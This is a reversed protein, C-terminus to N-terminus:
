VNGSPVPGTSDRAGLLRSFHKPFSNKESVDCVTSFLLNEFGASAHGPLAAPAFNM